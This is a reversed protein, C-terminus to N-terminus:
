QEGPWTTLVDGSEEDTLTVRPEPMGSAVRKWAEFKGRATAEDHWWGNQVPRGGSSLLLHYRGADPTHSM